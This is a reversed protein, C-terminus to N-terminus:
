CQKGCRSSHVFSCGPGIANSVDNGGHAFSMFCASLVQMYGFVSYVIQLQAGTPGAIDSLLGAQQVNSKDASAIKEAESSLLDGLQKQIVRSVIIAGIAGSSVAQLIAISLV